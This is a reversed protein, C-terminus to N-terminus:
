TQLSSERQYNKTQRVKTFMKAYSNYRRWDNAIWRAKGQFFQYMSHYSDLM